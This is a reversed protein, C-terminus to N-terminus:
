THELQSHILCCQWPQFYVQWGALHMQFHVRSALVALVSAMTLKAQHSSHLKLNCIDSITLTVMRRCYLRFGIIGMLVTNHCIISHLRQNAGIHRSKTHLNVFHYSEFSHTHMHTHKSAHTRNSVALSLSLKKFM